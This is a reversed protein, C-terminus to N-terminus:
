ERKASEIDKPKLILVRIGSPVIVLAAIAIPMVMWILNKVNPKEIMGQIMLLILICPAPLAFLAVPWFTPQPLLLLVGGAVLAVGLIQVIAEAIPKSGTGVLGLGLVYLCCYSTSCLAIIRKLTNM